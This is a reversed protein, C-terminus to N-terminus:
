FMRWCFILYYYYYYLINFQFHFRRRSDGENKIIFAIQMAFFPPALIYIDSKVNSNDSWKKRFENRINDSFGDYYTVIFFLMNIIIKKLLHESWNMFEFVFWSSHFIYEMMEVYDNGVVWALSWIDITIQLRIADRSFRYCVQEPSFKWLVCDKEVNWIFVCVDLTSLYWNNSPFVVRFVRITNCKDM